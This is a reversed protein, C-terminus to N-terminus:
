RLYPMDTSWNNNEYFETHRTVPKHIKRLPLVSLCFLVPNLRFIMKQQQCRHSQRNFLSSIRGATNLEVHILTFFFSCNICMNVAVSTLMDFVAFIFFTIKSFQQVNVYSSTCRQLLIVKKNKSNKTHSSRDERATLM